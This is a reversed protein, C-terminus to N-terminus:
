STDLTEVTEVFHTYLAVPVTSSLVKELLKDTTFMHPIYWDQELLWNKIYRDIFDTFHRLKFYAHCIKQYKKQICVHQMSQKGYILVQVGATPRQIKKGDIFCSSGVPVSNVQEVRNSTHIYQLINTFRKDTSVKACIEGRLRNFYVCDRQVPQIVPPPNRSVMRAFHYAIVHQCQDISIMNDYTIAYQIYVDSYLFGHIFETRVTM